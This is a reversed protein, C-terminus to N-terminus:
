ETKEKIEVGLSRCLQAPPGLKALKLLDKAQRLGLMYHWYRQWDHNNACWRETSEIIEVDLMREFDKIVQTAQQLDSM